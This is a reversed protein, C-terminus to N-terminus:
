SHRLWTLDVIERTDLTNPMVTVVADYGDAAIARSLTRGRKGYHRKLQMKWSRTDYYEGPRLNFWVVLPSEFNVTGAEWGPALDGPDPNHLLYRGAPEIKQQYHDGYTPPPARRTSRVFHVEVPVGTKFLRGYETTEALLM